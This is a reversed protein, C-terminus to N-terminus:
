GHGSGCLRRQRQYSRAAVVMAVSVITVATLGSRILDDVDGDALRQAVIMTLATLSMVMILMTECVVSIRHWVKVFRRHAVSVAYSVFLTAVAVIACWLLLDIGLSELDVLSIYWLSWTLAVANLYPVAFKGWSGSVAIVMGSVVLGFCAIFLLVVIEIVVRESITSLLM